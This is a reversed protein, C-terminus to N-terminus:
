PEHAGKNWGKARGVADQWRAYQREVRERDQNPHFLQGAPRTKAIEQVDSWYGVALGALYAAGQATTELIAPREVPIGLVDAQFQMLMDNAAAGGDARLMKSRTGTDNQMALLVDTVQFAISELAARAIHGIETDRQLGILMGSAYPDWHPAGLGTFAPVLVLNGSDKVAAAIKEIDPSRDFFQMKDRLWQVVAGGIFVSGELAYELTRGASCAITTILNEKSLTFHEGINQLLFCGTGYTNKADGVNVCLQGFLAAQQDGAIGAIEIEGLGLSTSVRALKESSWVVEPMMSEPVNLLKLLDKDWRDEVVNYLLTRSANTRDTVHRKGSTLNWILWSDVTGFALKGRDARSRAGEVNDLIWAIKTGSFYPDILLGTKRRIQDENGDKQLQACFEATRRDQWVIANYIPTGTERDWVLTTERQNTIGLAAVDRPRIRARALVEVASNLQSTLIDMPDHEVWGTKPFHQTFEHQAIGAIKGEHDFLMARSSTTGQDLSLVFQAMTM